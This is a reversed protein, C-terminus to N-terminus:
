VRHNHDRGDAAAVPGTKCQSSPKSGSSTGGFSGVPDSVKNPSM